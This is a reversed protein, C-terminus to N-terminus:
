DCEEMGCQGYYYELDPLDDEDSRVSPWEEGIDEDHFLCTLRTTSGITGFMYDYSGHMSQDGFLIPVCFFDPVQFPLGKTSEPFYLASALLKADLVKAAMLLGHKVRMICFFDTVKSILGISKIFNENISLYENLKNIKEVVWDFIAALYVKTFTNTECNLLCVLDDSLYSELEGKIYESCLTASLNLNCEVTTCM